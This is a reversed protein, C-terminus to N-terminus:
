ELQSVAHWTSGSTLETKELLVVGGNAVSKADSMKALHYAISTGVVGGGVVVVEAYEPLNVSATSQSSADEKCPQGTSFLRGGVLRHNLSSFVYSSCHATYLIVCHLVHWM